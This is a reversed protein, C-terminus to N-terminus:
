TLEFETYMPVHDSMEDPLIKFDAVEIGPSVFAYDAFKEPKSYLSTRTSTVGNEKVLNRLGLKEFM